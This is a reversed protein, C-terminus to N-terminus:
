KKLKEMRETGEIASSSLDSFLNVFGRQRIGRAAALLSRHRIATDQRIREGGRAMEGKAEVIIDAADRSMGGAAALAMLRGFQRDSDKQFDRLARDGQIQAANADARAASSRALTDTFGFLAEAGGAAATLGGAWGPGSM